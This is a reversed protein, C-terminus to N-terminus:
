KNEVRKAKGTRGVLTLIQVDKQLINKVIGGMLRLLGLFAAYAM